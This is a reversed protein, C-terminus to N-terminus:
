DRSYFKAFSEPANEDKPLMRFFRPSIYWVKWDYGKTAIAGVYDDGVQLVALSIAASGIGITVKPFEFLGQTMAMFNNDKSIGWLSDKTASMFEGPAPFEIKILTDSHTFVAGSETLIFAKDEACKLVRAAGDLQTHLDTISEDQHLFLNGNESLVYVATQTSDISVVAAVELTV